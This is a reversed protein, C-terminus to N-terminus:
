SLPLSLFSLSEVKLGEIEPVQQDPLVLLICKDQPSLDGEVKKNTGYGKKEERVYFGKKTKGKQNLIWLVCTLLPIGESGIAGWADFDQGKEELYSIIKEAQELLSPIPDM